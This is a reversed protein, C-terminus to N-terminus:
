ERKIQNIAHRLKEGLHSTMHYIVKVYMQMICIKFLAVSFSEVIEVSFLILMRSKQIYKDFIGSFCGIFMTHMHM